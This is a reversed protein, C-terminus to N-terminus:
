SMNEWGTGKLTEPDLLLRFAEDMAAQRANEELMRTILQTAPGPAEPRRCPSQTVRWGPGPRYGELVLQHALERSVAGRVKRRWMQARRGTKPGRYGRLVRYTAWLTVPITGLGPYEIKLDPIQRKGM